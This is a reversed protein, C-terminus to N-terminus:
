RGLVVGPSGQTGTIAVLVPAFVLAPLMNGVRIRSLELINLGIGLILLGGVATMEVIMPESLMSRLLGAGLTLTGQFVLVTVAALLVGWGLSSSLVTATIGDLMSKIALTQYSGSLGDEFSGLITMPGVCFILSATVFGRAVPSAEDSGAVSRGTVRPKVGLAREALGGVAELRDEIRLLEGVVVGLLMSGLLILVNSTPLVRQLGIVLTALGIAQMLTVRIGIPFRSGVLSGITGGALVAGVNILTGVL